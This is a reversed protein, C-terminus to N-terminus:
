SIPLHVYEYMFFYTPLKEEENYAYNSKTTFSGFYVKQLMKQNDKFKFESREPKRFDTKHMSCICLFTYTNKRLRIYLNSFQIFNEQKM